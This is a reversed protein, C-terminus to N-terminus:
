QHRPPSPPLTPSSPPSSGADLDRLDRRHRHGVATLLEALDPPTLQDLSNVVEAIVTDLPEDSHIRQLLRLAVPLSASPTNSLPAPHQPSHNDSTPPM